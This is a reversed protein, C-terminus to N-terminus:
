KTEKTNKIEDWIPNYDDYDPFYNDWFGEYNDIIEYDLNYPVHCLACTNDSMLYSAPDTFHKCIM